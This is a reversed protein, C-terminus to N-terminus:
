YTDIRRIISDNDSLAFWDYFSSLLKKNLIFIKKKPPYDLHHHSSHELFISTLSDQNQQVPLSQIRWQQEKSFFEEVLSFHLLYFLAEFLFLNQSLFRYAM